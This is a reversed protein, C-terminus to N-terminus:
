RKGKRGSRKMEREGFEGDKLRIAEVKLLAQTRERATEEQERKVFEEEKGNEKM